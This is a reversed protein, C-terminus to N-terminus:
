ARLFRVYVEEGARLDKAGAELLIFGDAASLVELHSSGAYPLAEAFIEHSPAAQAFIEHENEPGGPGAFRGGGSIESGGSSEAAARPHRNLRVPIFEAREPDTKPIDTRLRATCVRVCKDTEIGMGRLIFPRVFLHFLVYVAMPNGPLAFVYSNNLRGFIFRKGPKVAAGELIIELGLERLCEPIYDYDGGAVGGSILLLNPASHAGSEAGRAHFAPFKLNFNGAYNEGSAAGEAGGAPSKLNFNRARKQCEQAGPGCISALMACIDARDDGAQGQWVPPCHMEALLGALLAGNTDYIMGPRLPTGPATLESGTSLVAVSPIACVPVRNIGLGALIALDAAGLVRRTLVREGARLHAGREIINRATEAREIMIEQTSEQINEQGNKAERVSVFERRIVREIGHPVMAGTMIRVCCGPELKVNEADDGAAITATVRLVKGPAGASNQEGQVDSDCVAYGDMSAKAFPPSDMPSYIDEALVRGLAEATPLSEAAASPPPAHEAALLLAQQLSLM